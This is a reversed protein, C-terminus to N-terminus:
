LVQIHEGQQRHAEYEEVGGVEGGGTLLDSGADGQLTDRGQGGSLTDAGAGGLLRDNGADGAMSDWMGALYENYSQKTHKKFAKEVADFSNEPADVAYPASGFVCAANSSTAM